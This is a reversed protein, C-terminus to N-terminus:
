FKFKELPIHAAPSDGPVVNGNVDYFKGDIQRKVYPKQQAVHPSNPEGPM